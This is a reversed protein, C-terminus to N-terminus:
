HFIVSLEESHMFASLSPPIRCRFRSVYRYLSDTVLRYITDTDTNAFDNTPKEWVVRFNILITMDHSKVHCRNIESVSAM